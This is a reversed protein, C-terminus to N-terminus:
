SAVPTEVLTFRGTAFPDTAGPLYIRMAYDGAGWATLLESTPVTFAFGIRTTDALIGQAAPEQVVTEGDGELRVIQVLITDVRLAAPLRISYAIRDSARFRDTPNIAEGNAPDLATGFTISLPGASSPTPM